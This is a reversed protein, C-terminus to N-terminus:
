VSNKVPGKILTGPEKKSRELYQKQKPIKQQLRDLYNEDINFHERNQELFFGTKAILSANDLLLLYEFVKELNIYSLGELSRWTEEWGGALQPKDLCDVLTCELSTVKIDLGMRDELNVIFSEKGALSLVRPFSIPHYISGQFDFPAVTRHTFFHFKSFSSYAYGYFSLAAHYAIVAEKKVRGAILYPDILFKKPDFSSPIVAFFGRRIHVIKGSKLHYSILEKQTNKNKQGQASMFEIIEERRFVPHRAFFPELKM